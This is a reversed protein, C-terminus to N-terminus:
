GEGNVLEAARRNKIARDRDAIMFGIRRILEDPPTTADVFPADLWSIAGLLADREAELEAIRAEACGYHRPGWAYCGPGHTGIRDTYRALEREAQEARAESAALADAARTLLNLTVRGPSDDRVIARLEEVLKDNPQTM